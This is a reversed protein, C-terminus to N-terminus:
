HIAIQTQGKIKYILFLEDKYVEDYNNLLLPEDKLYYSVVDTNTTGLRTVKPSNKIIIWKAYKTPNVLSEKWYNGTGEFIYNRYPIPFYFAHPDNQYVSILVLGGDYNAQLWDATKLVKAKSPPFSHAANIPLYYALNIIPKFFLGLQVLLLSVVLGSIIKNSSALLGILIAFFPLSQIGYRINLEDHLNFQDSLLNDLTLPPFITYPSTYFFTFLVFAYPAVTVAIPISNILPTKNGRQASISLKTVWYFLGLLGVTATLIGVMEVTISNLSTLALGLNRSKSNQSKSQSTQIAEDSLVSANGSYIIFSQFPNGFIAWNYILWLVIGLGAVTLFLVLNSEFFKLRPTYKILSIVAVIGTAFAFVAYGEYRTLTALAVFVGALPLYIYQKSISWATLFYTSGAITMLFFSESLSTAQLYLLNISTVYALGGIFAAVPKQTLLLITKYIFAGGIIFSIGSVIYGAVGSKYLPEFIVLPVELLQPFPLWVGGLQALGPTLNQTVRLAINLRSRADGNALHIGDNLLSLLFASM